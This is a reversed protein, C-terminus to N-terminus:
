FLIFGEVSLDRQLEKWFLDPDIECQFIADVGERAFLEIQFIERQGIVGELKFQCGLIAIQIIVKPDIHHNIAHGQTM